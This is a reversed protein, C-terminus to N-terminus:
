NTADALDRGSTGRHKYPELYCLRYMNTVSYQNIESNGRSDVQVLGLNILLSIASKIENRYMGTYECIKEYGIQAYNTTDSRFAIIILYIKMANLENKSRLKFKHFAHLTEYSKNYLGMAPLKAWGARNTYNEIKYIKKRTTGINTIVGLNFLIKLGGSIKARSLGSIDGLKTYTLTCLGPEKSDISVKSSAHHVIIIYLMLAAIQDAKNSGIWKMKPLPYCDEDRLWYSPMRAWEKM